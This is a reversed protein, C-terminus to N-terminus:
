YFDNQSTQFPQLQPNTPPRDTPWSPSSPPGFDLHEPLPRRSRLRPETGRERGLTLARCRGAPLPSLPSLLCPRTLCCCGVDDAVLFPTLRTGSLCLPLRCITSLASVAPSDQLHSLSIYLDLGGLDCAPPAQGARSCTTGLGPSSPPPRKLATWEADRLARGPSHNAAM